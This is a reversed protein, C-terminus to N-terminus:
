NLKFEITFYFCSGIGPTSEVWAEGNMIDVMRKVVALGLGTGSYRRTFSGDVQIFSEFIKSHMESAIGIGTDALSFCLPYKNEGFKVHKTDTSISLTISGSTTFKVANDLLNAVTQQVKKGDGVLRIPIEPDIILTLTTGNRKAIPTFHATVEEIIRRLNFPHEDLTLKNEEAKSFDLLNNLLSLLTQSAQSIFELYEKQERTPNTDILLETIGIIGNLPTRIEHSM